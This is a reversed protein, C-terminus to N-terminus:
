SLLLVFGTLLFTVYFCQKESLVDHVWYCLHKEMAVLFITCPLSLPFAHKEDKKGEAWFDAILLVSM